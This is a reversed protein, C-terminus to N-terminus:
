PTAIIMCDFTGSPSGSGMATPDCTVTVYRKGAVPTCGTIEVCSVAGGSTAVNPAPAFGVITLNTSMGSNDAARIYFAPGAQGTTTGGAVLTKIYVIVRFRTCSVGLDQAATSVIATTWSTDAVTITATENSMFDVSPAVSSPGQTTLALTM